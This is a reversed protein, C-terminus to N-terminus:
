DPDTPPEQLETPKGILEDLVRRLNQTSTEHEIQELHGTLQVVHGQPHNWGLMSSLRESAKIYVASAHLDGDKLARTWLSQKLHSLREAELLMARRTGEGSFMQAAALDLVSNVEPVSMGRNRAIDRVSSGAVADRLIQQDLEDPDDPM